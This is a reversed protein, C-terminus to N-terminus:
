VTPIVYPLVTPNRGDADHTSACYGTAVTMGNKSITLRYEVTLWIQKIQDYTAVGDENNLIYYAGDADEYYGTAYSNKYSDPLRYREYWATAEPAPDDSYAGTAVNANPAFWGARTVEKVTFESISDVSQSTVPNSGCSNAWSSDATNFKDISGITAVLIAKDYEVTLGNIVLEHNANFSMSVQEVSNSIVFANALDGKTANAPEGTWHILTTDAIASFVNTGLIATKTSESNYYVYGSNTCNTYSVTDGNQGIFLSASGSTASINGNNACGNFSISAGNLTTGIFGGIYFSGSVNGNNTCNVFSWTRGGNSTCSGVFGGINAGTCSINANNTCNNFSLDVPGRAYGMFAGCGQLGNVYCTSDITVNAFSITGAPSGKRGGAIIAGPKATANNVKCNSMTLNRITCDGLRDFLCAFDNDGIDTHFEIATINSITHNAGELIGVFAPLINVVESATWLSGECNLDNKLLYVTSANALPYEVTGGNFTDAANESNRSGIHALINKFHAKTTIEHVWHGEAVYSDYFGYMTNRAMKEYQVAFPSFSSTHFTLIGTAADYDYETIPTGDHTLSLINLYQSLQIKVEVEQSFDSVESGNVYLTADFSMTGSHEEPLESIALDSVVLQVKDEAGVQEAAAPITTTVSVNSASATVVTDEENAVVVPSVVDESIISIYDGTDETYANGQVAEIGLVFQGNKNQYENGKNVPLEIDFALAPLTSSPSAEKWESTYRLLGVFTQAEATGIQLKTTLGKALTQDQSLYEFNVRYKFDINTQGASLAVNFTVRDGPTINVLNLANDAAAYSATGKNTFTGNIETETSQYHVGNEDIRDGSGGNYKTSYTQLGSVSYSVDLKGSGINLTTKNESTFLAFTTGISLAGFSLATLASVAIKKFEKRM